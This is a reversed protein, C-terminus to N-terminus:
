KNFLIDLIAYCIDAKKFVYYFPKDYSHSGTVATFPIYIQKLYDINTSYKYKRFELRATFTVERLHCWFHFLICHNQNISITCDSIGAGFVLTFFSCQCYTVEFTSSYSFTQMQQYYTNSLCLVLKGWVSLM